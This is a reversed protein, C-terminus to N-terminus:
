SSTTLTNTSKLSIRFSLFTFGIIVKRKKKEKKGEEENRSPLGDNVDVVFLRM